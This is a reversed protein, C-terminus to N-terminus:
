KFNILDRRGIVILKQVTSPLTAMLDSTFIESAEDVIVTQINLQFYSIM